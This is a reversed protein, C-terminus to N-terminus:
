KYKNEIHKWTDQSAKDEMSKKYLYSPTYKPNRMKGAADGFADIGNAQVQNATPWGSPPPSPIGLDYAKTVSDHMDQRGEFTPEAQSLTYSLDSGLGPIAGMAAPADGLSPPAFTDRDFKRGAYLENMSEHMEDDTRKGAHVHNGRHDSAM